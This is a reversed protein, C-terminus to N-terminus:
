KCSVCCLVLISNSAVTSHSFSFSVGFMIGFGIVILLWWLVTVGAVVVGIQMTFFLLKGHVGRDIATYRPNVKRAIGTLM